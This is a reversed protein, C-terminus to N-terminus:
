EFGGALRDVHNRQGGVDARLNAADVQGLRQGRRLDGRDAVCQQFPAHNEEAFLEERVLLVDREGRLEALRRDAVRHEPM